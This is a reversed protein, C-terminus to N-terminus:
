ARAVRRRQWAAAAVVGIILVAEVVKVTVAPVGADRQMASGGAQLAAFLLASAVVARADLRALLAVAIATYGYGPSLNEYLAYTVGQVEVAGALGALMGSLLFAGVATRAVDIRGASAAAAANLGVARVRFGAATHTLAWWLLGSLAIAVVFGLHLRTGTWLLPLRTSPDLVASQPYIGTPEQLPGRVLWGVCYVAVANLMLTSIVELV